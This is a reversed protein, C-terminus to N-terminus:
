LNINKLSHLRNYEKTIFDKDTQPDYYEVISDYLSKERKKWNDTWIEWFLKGSCDIDQKTKTTFYEIGADLMKNTYEEESMSLNEIFFSKVNTESM